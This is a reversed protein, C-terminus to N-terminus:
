PRPSIRVTASTPGDQLMPPLYPSGAYKAEYAADIRSNLDPGVAEFAAEHEAGAARIRGAGQEVAARFWRSRRGNYARAYLEGDVVVSWIWTPTGYTTGDGRFPSVHLDDSAAIAAITDEDWNTM